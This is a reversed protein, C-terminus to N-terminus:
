SNHVYVLHVPLRYNNYQYRRHQDDGELNSDVVVYLGLRAFLFLFVAYHFLPSPGLFACFLVSWSLTCLILMCGHQRHKEGKSRPHLSSLRKLRCSPFISRQTLPCTLLARHSYSSATPSVIRRTNEYGFKQKFASYDGTIYFSKSAKNYLVTAQRVAAFSSYLLLPPLKFRLQVYESRPQGM